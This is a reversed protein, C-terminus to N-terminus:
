APLHGADIADIANRVAEFATPGSAEGDILTLGKTATYRVRFDGTGPELACRLTRDTLERLAREVDTPEDPLTTEATVPSGGNVRVLWVGIRVGAFAIAAGLALLAGSAVVDSTSGRQLQM